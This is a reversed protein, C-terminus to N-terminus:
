IFKFLESQEHLAVLNHITQWSQRACGPPKKEAAMYDQLFSITTPDSPYGSGIEGYEAALNEIARDRHVKAVISAASVMPRDRDAHHESIIRCPRGLNCGVMNGYRAANVDCADVCAVSAGIDTIVQAHAWAMLANMNMQSRKADIEDAGIVLVAFPFRSCIIEELERRKQPSLLKSDKLGMGLMEEESDCGVAAVVLPGLVAGKGAEDVGCWM